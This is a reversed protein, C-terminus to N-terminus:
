PLGSEQDSVPEDVLHWGTVDDDEDSNDELIHQLSRSVPADPVERLRLLEQAIGRRARLATHLRYVKEFELPFPKRVAFSFSDTSKGPEAVSGTVNNLSTSRRPCDVDCGLEPAQCCLALNELTNQVQHLPIRVGQTYCLYAMNFNLMALGGTFAEVNAETLYLPSGSMDVDDKDACTFSKSGCNFMKFPLNVHLYHALLNTMHIVHGVAANYRERTGNQVNGLQSLGVNIIRYEPPEGLNEAMHSNAITDAHSQSTTEIANPSKMREIAIGKPSPVGEVSKYATRKQVRRLRFIAVIERVLLRRSRMLVDVARKYQGQGLELGHRLPLLERVRRQEFIDRAVFLDQRKSAVKERYDNLKARETKILGRAAVMSRHLEAIHHKIALARQLSSIGTTPRSGGLQTNIQTELENREAALTNYSSLSFELREQICTTCWFKRHTAACVGCDM